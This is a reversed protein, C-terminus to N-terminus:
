QTFHITNHGGCAFRRIIRWIGMECESWGVMQGDDHWGGLGMRGVPKGWLKVVDGQCGGAFYGWGRGRGIEKEKLGQMAAVLEAQKALPGAAKTTELM